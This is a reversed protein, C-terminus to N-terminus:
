SINNFKIKGVCFGHRDEEVIAVSYGKFKQTLKVFRM